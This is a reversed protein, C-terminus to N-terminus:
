GAINQEIRFHLTRHDFIGSDRTLYLNGFVDGYTAWAVFRLPTQGRCIENFMTETLVENFKQFSISREQGPGLVMPPIPPDTPKITRMNPIIIEAGFQVDNARTRGFNKMRLVIRADGDFQKTASPIIGVYELLIDARESNTVALQAFEASRQATRSSEIATNTQLKMQDAQTKIASLTRWLLAVQLAGVLLLLLSFFLYARDGWDRTVSVPPLERIRVSQDTNENSKKAGNREAAKTKDPSNVAM